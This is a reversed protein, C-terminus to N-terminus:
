TCFPSLPKKVLIRLHEQPIIQLSPRDYDRRGYWIICFITFLSRSVNATLVGLFAGLNPYTSVLEQDGGTEKIINGINLPMISASLLSFLKLNIGTRM